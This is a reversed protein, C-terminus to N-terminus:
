MSTPADIKLMALVVRIVSATAVCLNLRSQMLCEDEVKVRCANYFKHFLTALDYVYRTIRASDYSRAASEIEGTLAALHKILMREEPASLSTLEEISCTRPTVNDNELARLISCIRAHAYQVYYVPNQSTEEV